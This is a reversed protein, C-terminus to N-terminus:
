ILSCCLTGPANRERKVVQNFFVAQRNIAFHQPRAIGDIATRLKLQRSFTFDLTLPDRLIRGLYQRHLHAYKTKFLGASPQEDPQRVGQHCKILHVVTEHALNLQLVASTNDM